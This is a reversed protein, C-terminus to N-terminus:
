GQGLRAEKADDAGLGLGVRVRFWALRRPM